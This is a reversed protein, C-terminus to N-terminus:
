TSIKRSTENTLACVQCVPGVGVQSRVGGAGSGELSFRPIYYDGTQCPRGLVRIWRRGFDLTPLLLDLAPSLWSMNQDSLHCDGRAETVSRDVVIYVKRRSAGPTMTLM